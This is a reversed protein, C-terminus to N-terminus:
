TGLYQDTVSHNVQIMVATFAFCQTVSKWCTALLL